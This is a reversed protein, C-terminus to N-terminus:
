HAVASGGIRLTQAMEFTEIRDFKVDTNLFVNSVEALSRTGVSMYIPIASHVFRLLGYHDLHAHSLVVATVTPKANEYLGEILPVIKRELLQPLTFKRHINWDFPSMDKNM